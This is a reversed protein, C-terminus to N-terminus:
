LAYVVGARICTNNGLRGAKRKKMMCRERKELYSKFRLREKITGECTDEPKDMPLPPAIFVSVPVWRTMEIADPLLTQGEYVNSKQKVVRTLNEIAKKLKDLKEETAEALDHLRWQELLCWEDLFFEARWTRLTALHKVAKEEIKEELVRIVHRTQRFEKELKILKWLVREIETKREAMVEAAPLGRCNKHITCCIECVYKHCNQDFCYMTADAEKHVFCKPHAWQKESQNIMQHNKTEEESHSSVYCHFCYDKSCQLCFVDAEHHVNRQCSVATKPRVSIDLVAFNIRVAGVFIEGKSLRWEYCERCLSGRYLPFAFCKPNESETYFNECEICALNDKWEEESIIRVGICHESTEAFRYNVTRKTEVKVIFVATTPVGARSDYSIHLTTKMRISSSPIDTIFCPPLNHIVKVLAGDGGVTFQVSTRRHEPFFLWDPHEEKEKKFYDPDWYKVM